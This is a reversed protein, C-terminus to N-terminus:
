TKKIQQIPIKIVFESGKGLNSCCELSGQHKECVIQHSISLGLGTGKGVTKTTFFPEFLRQKAIDTMGSGNDIIHINILDDNLSQTRITITSVEQKIGLLSRQQHEDQLADIANSIINM